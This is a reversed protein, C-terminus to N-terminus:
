FYGYYFGLTGSQDPTGFSYDSPKVLWHCTIGSFTIQCQLSSNYTHDVPVTHIFFFPTGNALGSHSFSGSYFSGSVNFSALGLVTLVGDSTDLIINGSGDWLRLGHAM